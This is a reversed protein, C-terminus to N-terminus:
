SFIGNFFMNISIEFIYKNSSFNYNKIVRAGKLCDEKYSQKQRQKWNKSGFFVMYCMEPTSIHHSLATKKKKGM